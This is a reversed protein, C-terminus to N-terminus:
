NGCLNKVFKMRCGKNKALCKKVSKQKNTKRKVQEFLYFLNFSILFKVRYNFISRSTPQKPGALPWPQGSVLTTILTLNHPPSPPMKLFSWSDVIFRSALPRRFSNLPIVYCHPSYWRGLAEWTIPTCHLPNKSWLVSAGTVKCPPSASAASASASPRM